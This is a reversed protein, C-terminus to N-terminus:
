AGVRKVAVEKEKPSVILEIRSIGKGKAVVKAVNIRRKGANLITGGESSRDNFVLGKEKRGKLAEISRFGLKQGKVM